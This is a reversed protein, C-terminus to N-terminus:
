VPRLGHRQAGGARVRGKGGTSAGAAKLDGGVPRLGHRQAVKGRAPHIKALHAYVAHPSGFRAGCKACAYYRTHKHVRTQRWNPLAVMGPWEYNSRPDGPVRRYGGTAAIREDVETRHTVPQGTVRVATM